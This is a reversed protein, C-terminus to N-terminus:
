EDTEQETMKDLVQQVGRQYSDLLCRKEDLSLDVIDDHRVNYVVELVQIITAEDTEWPDPNKTEM